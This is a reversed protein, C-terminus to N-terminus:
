FGFADGNGSSLAAMIRGEDDSVNSSKMTWRFKSKLVGLLKKYNEESYCHCEEPFVEVLKEQNNKIEDRLFKWFFAQKDLIDLFRNSDSYVCDVSSMKNFGCCGSHCGEFYSMAKKYRNEWDNIYSLIFDCYEVATKYKMMKAKFYVFKLGKESLSDLDIDFDM